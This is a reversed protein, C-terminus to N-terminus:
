NYGVVKATRYQKHLLQTVDFSYLQDHQCHQVTANNDFYAIREADRRIAAKSRKTFASSIRTYETGM